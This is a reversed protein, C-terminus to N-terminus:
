RIERKFIIRNWYACLTLELSTSCREMDPIKHWVTCGGYYEVEWSKSKAGILKLLFNPTYIWRTKLIYETGKKESGILEIKLM